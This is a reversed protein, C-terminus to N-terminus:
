KMRGVLGMKNSVAGGGGASTGAGIVNTKPAPWTGKDTLRKSTKRKRRQNNSFVLDAIADKPPVHITGDVITSNFTKGPHRIYTFVDKDRADRSIAGDRWPVTMTVILDSPIGQPLCLEM